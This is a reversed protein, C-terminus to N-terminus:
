APGGEHIQAVRVGAERFMTRAAAFEDAPMSTTGTGHLVTTIGAQILTRACAACPMHTVAVTCGETRIGVRAAFAVINAEAHSAWLYKGPRVLREPLDHVGRPPGNYATLRVEGQPGALVAGVQTPDKSRTAAVRALQLLYQPVSPRQASLAAAAMARVDEFPDEHHISM